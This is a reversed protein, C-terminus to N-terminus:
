RILAAGRARGSRTILGDIVLLAFIKKQVTSVTLEEGDMSIDIRSRGVEVGCDPIDFVGSRPRVDCSRKEVIESVSKL